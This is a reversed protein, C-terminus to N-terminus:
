VSLLSDVTEHSLFSYFYLITVSNVESDSQFFTNTTDFYFLFVKCDM